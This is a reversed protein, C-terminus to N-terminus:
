QCQWCPHFVALQRWTLALASPSPLPVIIYLFRDLKLPVLFLPSSLQLHLHKSFDHSPHPPALSIAGMLCDENAHPMSTEDWVWPCDFLSGLPEPFCVCLLHLQIYRDKFRSGLWTFFIYISEKRASPSHFTGRRESIGRWELGSNSEDISMEEKRAGM